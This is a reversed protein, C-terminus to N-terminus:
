NGNSQHSHEAKSFYRALAKRNLVVHTIVTLTFLIALVIHGVAPGPHSPGSEAIGVIFTFVFLISMAIANFRRM